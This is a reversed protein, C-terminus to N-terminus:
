KLKFFAELKSGGVTTMTAKYCTGPRKPTQWNQIFQGGEADYRLSTGGTTTVEIADEGMGATCSVTGATFSSVANTSTLETSGAFVKFKLPVTSGGKVTNWLGMDVPQYFGSLTLPRVTVKFSGTGTNGAGDTASCTVTTTTGVAFTSGSAPGCTADLQGSVLDTATVPGFNVVAGSIGTPDVTIDAPVNVVPPTTDQVKVVLTASGTNGAADTASCTVTTNGLPFVSGSAPSCTVPVLGDVNDTASATFTAAAGAPGTAEVTVDGSTTVVPPTTDSPGALVRLTFRAPMVNYTGPGSDTVAVNIVHNGVSSSTFQVSQYTSCASFTLSAPNATVGAPTLITLTAPSGDSANCGPQPDNGGGSTGTAQIRYSVTTTGGSTITDNGTVALDNQVNDAAVPAMAVFLVILAATLAGFTRRIRTTVVM